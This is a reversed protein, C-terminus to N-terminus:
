CIRSESRTVHLPRWRAGSSSRATYGRGACSGSGTQTATPPLGCDATRAPASPRGSARAIMPPMGSRKAGTASIWRRAASSIPWGRGAILMLEWPNMASVDRAAAVLGVGGEGRHHVADAPLAAPRRHRALLEVRRARQPAGVEDAARLLDDLLDEEMVLDEPVVAEEHLHADPGERMRADHARDLQERRLDCRDDPPLERARGGLTGAGHSM